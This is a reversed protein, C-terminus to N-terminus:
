VLLAALRLRRTSGCLVIRLGPHEKGGCRGDELGDRLVRLAHGNFLREAVPMTAPTYPSRHDLERGCRHHVPQDAHHAQRIIELHMEALAHAHVGSALLPARLPGHRVPHTPKPAALPQKIVRAVIPTAPQRLLPLPDTLWHSSNLGCSSCRDLITGHPSLM